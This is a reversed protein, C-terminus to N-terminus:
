FPFSQNFMAIDRQYIEEVQERTGPNREYMQAATCSYNKGVNEYRLKRPEIGITRCIDDFQMQVPLHQAIPGDLMIAWFHKFGRLWFTQERAHHYTDKDRPIQKLYEEFSFGKQEMNFHFYASVARRWANRINCFIIADDFYEKEIHGDQIMKWATQHGFFVSEKCDAPIHPWKGQMDLMLDQLTLFTSVGATKPIHLFVFKKM